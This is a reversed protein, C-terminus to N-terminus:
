PRSNFRASHPKVISNVISYKRLSMDTFFGCRYAKEVKPNISKMEIMGVYRLKTMGLEEENKTSRDSLSSLANLTKFNVLYKPSAEAKFLAKCWDLILITTNRKATNMMQMM